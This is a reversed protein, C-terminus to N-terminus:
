GTMSDIVYFEGEKHDSERVMKRKHVQFIRCDAHIEDQVVNWKSPFNASM